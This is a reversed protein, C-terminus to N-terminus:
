NKMILLAAVFGILFFIADRLYFLRGTMVENLTSNNNIEEEILLNDKIKEDLSVIKLTSNNNIEREIPAVPKIPSVIKLTSNNNIEEEILLNDKIKEDPKLFLTTDKKCRPCFFSEFLMAKSTKVGTKKCNNCLYTKRM